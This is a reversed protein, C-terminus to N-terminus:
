APRCKALFLGPRALRPKRDVMSIPDRVVRAAHQQAGEGTLHASAYCDLLSIQPRQISALQCFAVPQVGASVGNCEKRTLEGDALKGKRCFIERGVQLAVPKIGLRNTEQADSEVAITVAVPPRILREDTSEDRQCATASQM